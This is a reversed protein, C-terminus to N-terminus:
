AQARPHRTRCRRNLLRVCLRYTSPSDFDRFIARDRVPVRVVRQERGPRYIVERATAAVALEVRLEPGLIVPHGGRKGRVPIVIHQNPGREEYARRLRALLAPRLLPYDVPYILIPARRPVRRLGALLSALQGRRWHHNRVVQCGGPPKWRGLIKGAESGLVVIPRAYGPSMHCTRIAM